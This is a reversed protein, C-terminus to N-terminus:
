LYVYEADLTDEYILEPWEPDRLLPLRVVANRDFTNVALWRREQEAYDAALKEVAANVIAEQLLLNDWDIM